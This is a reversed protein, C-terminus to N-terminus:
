TINAVKVVNTVYFCNFSKYVISFKEERQRSRLTLIVLKGVRKHIVDCKLIQIQQSAHIPHTIYVKSLHKNTIKANYNVSLVKYTTRTIM